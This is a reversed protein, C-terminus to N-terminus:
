RPLIAKRLTEFPVRLLVVRLSSFEQDGLEAPFRQLSVILEFRGFTVQILISLRRFLPFRLVFRQLRLVFLNSVEDGSKKKIM